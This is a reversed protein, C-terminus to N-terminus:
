IFRRDTRVRHGVSHASHALIGGRETLFRRGETVTLASDGVTRSALPAHAMPARATPEADIHAWSRAPPKWAANPSAWGTTPSPPRPNVTLGDVVGLLMKTCESCIGLGAICSHEAFRVGEIMSAVLDANTLDASEALAQETPTVIRSSV